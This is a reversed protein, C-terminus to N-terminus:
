GDGGEVSRRVKANPAVRHYPRQYQSTSRMEDSAWARNHPSRLTQNHGVGCEPGDSVVPPEEWGSDPDGIIRCVM